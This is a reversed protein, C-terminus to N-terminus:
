NHVIIRVRAGPCGHGHHETLHLRADGGTVQMYVPAGEDFRHEWDISFGLWDIYFEVLKRYDFIRLIPIIKTAMAPIYRRNKLRSKLSSDKRAFIENM